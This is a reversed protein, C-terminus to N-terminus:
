LLKNESSGRKIVRRWRGYGLNQYVCFASSVVATVYIELPLLRNTHAVGNRKLGYVGKGGEGFSFLRKRVRM